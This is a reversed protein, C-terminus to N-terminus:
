GVIIVKYANLAPADTFAITVFNDDKMRIDTEVVNYEANNERVMVTVDRTGLYHHVDFSTNSADGITFVAKRAIAFYNNGDNTLTWDKNAESWIINVDNASGRKVTIAADQSPIGSTFNSNLVITNDSLDIEQKNIATLTGKVDLDGNVTVNNTVTVSNFTPDTFNSFANDTYGEANSQATSAANDAYSEIATTASNIANTIATNRNSVETSIASDTYSEATSLAVSIASNRDSVETSIKSDTYSEADSKATAIASNRNTIETSIASDTYSEANSQATSAANDAYSKTAFSSGITTNLTIIGTAPDVNATGTVDGTLTVTSAATGGAAINHWAGNGYYRLVKTTSDYYIRGEKNGSTPASSLNQIVANQLENTNLDINTLYLRAM